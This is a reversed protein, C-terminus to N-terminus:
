RRAALEVPFSELNRFLPGMPETWRIEGDLLRSGPPIFDLCADLM